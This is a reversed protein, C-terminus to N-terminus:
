YPEAEGVQLRRFRWGITLCEHMAEEIQNISHSFEAASIEDLTDKCYERMHPKEVMVCEVVKKIGSLIECIPKHTQGNFNVKETLAGSLRKDLFIGTDTITEVAGSPLTKKTIRPFPNSKSTPTNM